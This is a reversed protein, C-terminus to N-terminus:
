LLLYFVGVMDNWAAFICEMYLYRPFFAVMGDPVIKNGFISVLPLFCNRTLTM